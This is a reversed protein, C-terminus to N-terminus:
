KDDPCIFLKEHCCIREDLKGVQIELNEIRDRLKITSNVLLSGIFAVIAFLVVALISMVRDTTITNAPM